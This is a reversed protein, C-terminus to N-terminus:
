AAEEDVTYEDVTYSGFSNSRSEVAADALERTSFVGVIGSGYSGWDYTVVFVTSM